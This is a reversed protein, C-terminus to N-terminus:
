ELDADTITFTIKGSTDGGFNGEEFVWSDYNFPSNVEEGFYGAPGTWVQKVEGNAHLEITTLNDYALTNVGAEIPTYGDNEVFIDILSDRRKSPIITISSDTTTSFSKLVLVVELQSDNHYDQAYWVDLEDYWFLTCGGLLNLSLGTLILLGCFILKRIM